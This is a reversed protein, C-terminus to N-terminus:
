LVDKTKPRREILKGIYKREKDEEKGTIKM